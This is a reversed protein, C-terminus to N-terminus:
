KNSGNCTSFESMLVKLPQYDNEAVYSVDRQGYCEYHSSFSDVNNMEDM